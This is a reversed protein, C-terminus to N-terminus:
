VAGNAVSITLAGIASAVCVWGFWIGIIRLSWMQAGETVGRRVRNVAGVGLFLTLLLHFLNGGAIVLVASGYANDSAQVPLTAMQVVNLVLAVAMILVGIGALTVFRSRGSSEIAGLGARYAIFGAVMCATIAWPWWLSATASKTPHFNGETNVGRLYLYAFSLAAVFSADAVILLVAGTMWRTGVVEPEEPAHSDHVLATGSSM